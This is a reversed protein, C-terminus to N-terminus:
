LHRLFVNKDNVRQATLKKSLFRQLDPSNKELLDSQSKNKKNIESLKKSVFSQFVDNELYCDLSDYYLFNSIFFNFLLDDPSTILNKEFNQCFFLLRKLNRNQFYVEEIQFISRKVVSICEM